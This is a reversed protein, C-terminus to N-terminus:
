GAPPGPRCGGGGGFAGAQGVLSRNLLVDRYVSKADGLKRLVPCYVNVQQPRRADSSDPCDSSCFVSGGMSYTCSRRCDSFIGTVRLLSCKSRARKSYEDRQM